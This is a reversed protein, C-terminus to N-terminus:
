PSSKRPMESVMPSPLSSPLPGESSLTITALPMGYILADSAFREGGGGGGGGGGWVCVCMGGCEVSFGPLM